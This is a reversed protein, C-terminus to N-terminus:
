KDTEKYEKFWSNYKKNKRIEELEDIKNEIKAKVMASIEATSMSSYEEYPIPDMFAVQTTVRRMSNFDFPIHSDYIAVPVIPVKANKAVKFAGPRFEQLHNGNHDYKGEPFYIYRVGAAAKETMGKLVNVQQRFDNRELRIGDVLEVVQNALMIRSREADMIVSCKGPHVSIIGLADYRGQHNSYMIYGGEKPLNEVGYAITTIRARKKVDGIIRCALKFRKDMDYKEPHKCWYDGMIVYVLIRIISIIIIFYFRFM